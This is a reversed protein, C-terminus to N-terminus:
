KRLSYAIANVQRLHGTESSRVWDPPRAPRKEFHDVSVLCSPQSPRMASSQLWGTVTNIIEAALPTDSQVLSTYPLRDTGPLRTTGTYRATHAYATKVLTIEHADISWFGRETRIADRERRLVRRRGLNTHGM